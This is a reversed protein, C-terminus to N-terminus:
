QGGDRDRSVAYIYEVCPEGRFIVSRSEVKHMGVRELVRISPLNRVDTIGLVREAGTREFVMSIAERAANTAIGRGQSQRRLTFGIESHRGDPALLLGIDGVLALDGPQAIALQCWVGPQLLAASSMETLFANAEVDPTASWGQYQGLVADHRYAQFARLDSPSLRRLVVGHAIRPLSDGGRLPATPDPM